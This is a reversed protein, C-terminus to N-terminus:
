ADGTEDRDAPSTTARNWTRRTTKVGPGVQQQRGSPEVEDVVVPVEGGNPMAVRQGRLWQWSTTTASTDALYDDRRARFYDTLLVQVAAAVPIALVAGMIGLFQTGALIALFVTMPSLGVAGRMIRPVLIYNELSQMLVILIVVFIAKDWGQTLAFVVAPIGGLWPGVIPIIETLGAWIGLLPWFRIGLLGYGITATVGIVLMLVLQGRMWDGVKSEVSTLIGAIRERNSPRVQELTLSFLWDKELLYYFAIVLVTLLGIVGGGVGTALGIVVDAAGDPVAGPLDVGPNEIFQNVRLLGERGIGSLIPNSSQEWSQELADLQGPAQERFINVQDRIVPAVAVFFLVVGAIIAIYMMLISLPRPVHRAQLLEVPREILTAFVIALILLILVLQIELLLYAVLLSLVLSVPTLGHRWSREPHDGGNSPRGPPASPPPSQRPHREARSESM